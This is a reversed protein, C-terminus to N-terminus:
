VFTFLLCMPQSVKTIPASFGIQSILVVKLASLQTKNTYVELEGKFANNKTLGKAQLANELDREHFDISILLRFGGFKGIDCDQVSERRGKPLTLVM